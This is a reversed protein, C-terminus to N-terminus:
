KRLPVKPAPSPAPKAPAADAPAAPPASAPEQPAGASDAPSNLLVEVKAGQRLRALLTRIEDYTLFRVIQPRAEELSIPEEPRRDEVRVLAWGNDTQFPGVLQGPKAEKL